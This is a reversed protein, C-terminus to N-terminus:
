QRAFARLADVGLHGLLGDPFRDKRIISARTLGACSVRFDRGIYGLHARLVDQQWSGGAQAALGTAKMDIRHPRDLAGDNGVAM